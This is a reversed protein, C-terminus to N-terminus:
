WQRKNLIFVLLYHTSILVFFVVPRLIGSISMVTTLCEVSICYSHLIIGRRYKHSVKNKNVGKDSHYQILEVTIEIALVLKTTNAQMVNLVHIYISISLINSINENCSELVALM